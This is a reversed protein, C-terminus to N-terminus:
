SSSSRHRLVSELENMFYTHAAAKARKERGAKAEVERAARMQEIRVERPVKQKVEVPIETQLLTPYTEPFSDAFTTDSPTSVLTSSADTSMDAESALTSSADADSTLSGTSQPREMNCSVQHWLNRIEEIEAEIAETQNKLETPSNESLEIRAALHQAVSSLIFLKSSGRERPTRAKVAGPSNIGIPDFRESTIVRSLERSIEDFHKLHDLVTSWVAIETADCRGSSPIVMLCCLFARRLFHLKRFCHKLFSIPTHCSASGTWRGAEEEEEEGGLFGVFDDNMVFGLNQQVTMLDYVEFMQQLDLESSFQFVDAIAKLYAEVAITLSSSLVARLRRAGNTGTGGSVPTAGAKYGQDILDVEQIFRLCRVIDGDFSRSSDVFLEAHGLVKSRLQRVLRRRSHAFLYLAILICAAFAMNSKNYKSRWFVLIAVVMICGGSGVWMNSPLRVADWPGRISMFLEFRRQEPAIKTGSWTTYLPKSELLHSGVIIYRFQELFNRTEETNIQRDAAQHVLRRLRMQRMGRSLDPAEFSREEEPPLTDEIGWDKADVEEELYEALPTDKFVAEDM